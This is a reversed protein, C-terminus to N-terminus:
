LHTHPSSIIWAFREKFHQWTVHSIHGESVKLLYQGLELLARPPGLRSHRFALEVLEQEIDVNSMEQDCLQAIDQIRGNSAWALRLSLLKRLSSENWRITVLNLRATEYGTSHLAMKELTDPLFFKWVTGSLSLLPLSNLLPAVLAEMKALPQTEIYGDVEDVLIFLTTLNLGALRKQVGELISQLTSNPHFLAPRETERSWDEALPGERMRYTLSEGELYMALFAWWWDRALRNLDEFREPYTTILNYVAEAVSSLLPKTHKHLDVDSPHEVIKEFNKYVVVLPAFVSGDELPWGAFAQQQLQNLYVELRLRGATKGGGRPALLVASSHLDKIHDDFGPHAVFTEELIEPRMKEAEFFAFPHYRFGLTALQPSPPPFSATRHTLPSSDWQRLGGRHVHEASGEGFRVLSEHSPRGLEGHSALDQTPLQEKEM